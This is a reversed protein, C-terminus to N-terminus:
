RKALLAKFKEVGIPRSFYFGQVYECGLDKLSDYQEKTEVGEVIIPMGLRKTMSVISEIVVRSKETEGNDQIFGMDAKLVDIPLRKFINFNSYGVGFDDM